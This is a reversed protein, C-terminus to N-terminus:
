IRDGALPDLPITECWPPIEPSLGCGDAALVLYVPFDPAEEPFVGWADTLYILGRVPGEREELEEAWQFVPRFDTRGFGSVTLAARIAEWDEPGTVARVDQLEADCQLLWVTGRWRPGLARFLAATETLFREMVEGSCSGSTDMAVVLREPSPTEDEEGPELLPAGLLELGARYWIPDFHEPSERCVERPRLLRRLLEEYPTDTEGGAPAFRQRLMGAATGWQRGGLGFAGSEAGAGDAQPCLAGALEAAAEQWARDAAHRDAPPLTEGGLIGIRADGAASWLGHDDVACPGSDSWRLPRERRLVTLARIRQELSGSPPAGRPFRRARDFYEEVAEPALRPCLCCSLEAAALDAAQDFVEQDPYGSRKPLHGLLCHCALHLLQWAPAAPDQRFLQVLAEPQYFLRIGNTGMPVPDEVPADQLLYLASMLPPVMRGLSRRAYRLITRALQDPSLEQRLGPRKKM